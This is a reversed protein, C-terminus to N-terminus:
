KGKVIGRLLKSEKSELASISAVWSLYRAAFIATCSLFFLSFFSASCLYASSSLFSFSAAFAAAAASSSFFFHSAASVSFALFTPLDLAAPFCLATSFDSESLM